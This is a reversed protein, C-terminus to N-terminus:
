ASISRIGRGSGGITITGEVPPVPPGFIVEPIVFKQISM